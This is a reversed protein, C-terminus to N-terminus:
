CKRTRRFLSLQKGPIKRIPTRRTKIPCTMAPRNFAAERDVATTAAQVLGAFHSQAGDESFSLAGDTLSYMQVGQVMPQDPDPYKSAFKMM